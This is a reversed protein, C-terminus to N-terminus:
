AIEVTHPSTFQGGGLETSVFLTGVDEVATDLMGASDLETLVLGVPAGFAKMAAMARQYMAADDLKHMIASPEFYMSRGGSHIDVVADALPLVAGNIYHAIMETITGDRKGPFARNMNGDDIPSLRANARMAPYNLHPIIIVRGQVEGPDLSRVLKMLAIQGEYEDGHNGGTFVVTPGSGNAIVSMPMHMAGWGSENRSHPINLWGVQKGLAGFDVNASIKSDVM